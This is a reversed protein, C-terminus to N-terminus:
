AARKRQRRTMSADIRPRRYDSWEIVTTMEINAPESAWNIAALINLKRRKQWSMAISFKSDQLDIDCHGAAAAMAINSSPEGVAVLITGSDLPSRMRQALMWATNAIAPEDIRVPESIVELRAAVKAARKIEKREKPTAEALRARERESLLERWRKRTFTGGVIRNGISSDQGTASLSADIGSLVFSAPDAALTASGAGGDILVADNGVFAYGVTAAVLAPTLPASQGSMGYSAVAGALSVSTAADSGTLVFSAAGAVLAPTLTGTNGTETYTAVAAVIAPTLVAANSTLTFTGVDATLTFSGAGSDILTADNGTLVYSAVSAVLAPTLISDNGTLVYSGSAELMSINFIASQGALSFSGVTCVLSVNSIEDNGTLIYTATSSAITVALVDDNGVLSYSAVAASLVQSGAVQEELSRLDLLL